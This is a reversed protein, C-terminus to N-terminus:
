LSLLTLTVVGHKWMFLASSELSLASLPASPTRARTASSCIDFKTLNTKKASHWYNEILFLSFFDKVQSHSMVSSLQVSLKSRYIFVLCPLLAQPCWWRLSGHPPTQLPIFSSPCSSTLLSSSWVPLYCGWAFSGIFCTPESIEAWCKGGFVPFIYHNFSCCSPIQSWPEPHCGSRSRSNM